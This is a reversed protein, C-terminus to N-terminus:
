EFSRCSFNRPLQCGVGGRLWLKAKLSFYANNNVSPLPLHVVVSFGWNIWPSHNKNISTIRIFLEGSRCFNSDCIWVMIAAITLPTKVISKQIIISRSFYTPTSTWLFVLNGVLDVLWTFLGPLFEHKVNPISWPKILFIYTKQM